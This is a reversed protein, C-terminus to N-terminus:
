SSEPSVPPVKAFDQELQSVGTRIFPDPVELLMALDHENRPGDALMRPGDLASTAVAHRTDQLLEMWTSCELSSAFRVLVSSRTDIFDQGPLPEGFEIVEDEWHEHRHVAVLNRRELPPRLLVHKNDTGTATLLLVDNCLLLQIPADQLPPLVGEAEGLAVVRRGAMGLDFHAYDGRPSFNRLYAAVRPHM